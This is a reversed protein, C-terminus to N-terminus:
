PSRNRRVDLEGAGSDGCRRGDARWASKDCVPRVRHDLRPRIAGRENCKRRDVHHRRCSQVSRIRVFLDSVYGSDGCSDTLLHAVWSIRQAGFDYATAMGSERALYPSFHPAEIVDDVGMSEISCVRGPTNVCIAFIANMLSCIASGWGILWAVINTITLPGKVLRGLADGESGDGGSAARCRPTTPVRGRM